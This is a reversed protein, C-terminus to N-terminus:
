ALKNNSSIKLDTLDLGKLLRIVNGNTDYMYSTGLNGKYLVVDFYLQEGYANTNFVELEVSEFTSPAQGVLLQEYWNTTDSINLEVENLVTSALIEGAKNKFKLTFGVKISSLTSPIFKLPAWIEKSIILSQTQTVTPYIPNIVAGFVEFIYFLFSTILEFFSEILRPIANPFLLICSASVINILLCIIHRYDEKLMHHYRKLMVVM